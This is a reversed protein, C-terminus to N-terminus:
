VGFFPLILIYVEPHGFFWFLHQWLIASGGAAPDFFHGGLTRDIFLMALAGTLVPFTLMILLSTVLMNWTFVPMRFMSMGPARMAFITVVFNIAGLIGSTGSFPLGIIWLNSGNGPSFIPGSLPAAWGGWRRRGVSGTGPSRILGGLSRWGTPAACQPM